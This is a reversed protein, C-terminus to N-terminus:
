FPIHHSAQLRLLLLREDDENDDSHNDDVNDDTHNDDNDLAKGPSVASSRTSSRCFNSSLELFSRYTSLASSSFYKEIRNEFTNKQENRCKRLEIKM